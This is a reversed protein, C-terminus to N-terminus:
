TNSHKTEIPTLFIGAPICLFIKSMIELLFQLHLILLTNFFIIQLHIKGNERVLGTDWCHHFCCKYVICLILLEVSFLGM